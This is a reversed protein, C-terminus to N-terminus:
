DKPPAYWYLGKTTAVYLCNECRLVTYVFEEDQHALWKVSGSQRDVEYLGACTPVWLRKADWAAEGILTPGPLNCKVEGIVNGDKSFEFCAQRDKMSCCLTEGNDNLYYLPADQGLNEWGAPMQLWAKTSAPRWAENAFARKGSADWWVRTVDITPEANFALNAATPALVKVTGLVPDLEAVGWRELDARFSMLVKDPTCALDAIISEPLENAGKTYHRLVHGNLDVQYLGDDGGFFVQDRWATVCRITKPLEEIPKTQADGSRYTVAPGPPFGGPVLVLWLRGGVAALRTPHFNYSVPVGKIPHLVSFNPIPQCDKAAQCLARVEEVEGLSRRRWNGPSVVRTLTDCLKLGEEPDDKWISKEFYHKYLVMLAAHFALAPKASNQSLLYQVGARINQRAEEPKKLKELAESKMIFVKGPDNTLSTTTIHQEKAPDLLAIARDCHQVAEAVRDKDLLFRALWYEATYQVQIDPSQTYGQLCAIKEAVTQPSQHIYNINSAGDRIYQSFAAGLRFQPEGGGRGQPMKGGCWDQITKKLVQEFSGSGLKALETAARQRDFDNFLDHNDSIFQYGERRRDQLESCKKFQPFGFTQLIDLYSAAYTYGRTNKSVADEV